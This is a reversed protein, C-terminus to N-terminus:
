KKDSGVEKDNRKEKMKKLWKKFGETQAFATSEEDQEPPCKPPGQKSFYFESASKEPPPPCVPLSEDEVEGTEKNPFQCWCAPPADGDASEQHARIRVSQTVAAFLVALVAVQTRMFLNIALIRSGKYLSSSSNKTITVIKILM